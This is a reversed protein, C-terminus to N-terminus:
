ATPRSVALYEARRRPDTLVTYAILVQAFVSSADQARDGSIGLEALKEPRLYRAFELYAERVDEVSAGHSLGLFSFHDVGRELLVSGVDILEDVEARSLADPRMRTPQAELFPDTMARHSTASGSPAAPRGVLRARPTPIRTVEPDQDIPMPVATMTPERLTPTRTVTPERLTPTRSLTSHQPTPVRGPLESITAVDCVALTCLVAEVMRPDIGRHIASLEALSTGQHLADIVVRTDDDLDFRSLDAGPRLVFRTGGVQRLTRTLRHQSVNMRMGRYIAARIDVAVGSFVPVTIPDTVVYHGIDVSFTRAVRQILTRRKLEALQAPTLRAADGFRDANEVRRLGRAEVASILKAALAVRALSDVSLPSTAGIVLNGDFAVRHQPGGASHLTLEGRAGAAGLGHLTTGWPRDAIAGRVERGPQM